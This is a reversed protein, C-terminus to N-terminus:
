RTRRWWDPNYRPNDHWDVRYRGPRTETVRGFRRVAEPPIHAPISIEGEAVMLNGGFTGGRQVRGALQANADWGPVGRVELVTGGDGAWAAAGQGDPTSVQRTAGRFGSEGREEVHELLNRNPGRPPEFGPTGLQTRVTDVDASVGTYLPVDHGLPFDPRVERVGGGPAPVQATMDRYLALDRQHEHALADGFGRRRAEPLAAGATELQAVADYMRGQSLATDAGQLRRVAGDPLAHIDASEVGAARLATVLRGAQAEPAGSAMLRSVAFARELQALDAGETRRLAALLDGSRAAYRTMLRPDQVLIRALRELEDATAGNLARLTADDLSSLMFVARRTLAAEVDRGIASRLRTRERVMAGVGLAFLGGSIILLTIVQVIADQKRPGSLHPDSLVADIQRVGEVSILVLQTGELATASWLLMRGQTTMMLARGGTTAAVWATRAGIISAAIGVVDIAIQTGSPRANQLQESINIAGATAGVGAAAIFLGAAIPQGGPILGVVVGTLALALSAWGLDGSLAGMVSAGRTVFTWGGPTIGYPNAPIDARLSGEPYLNRQNFDEIAAATSEGGYEIRPVGPTLDLLKVRAPDARDPGMFLRPLMEVGTRSGVYSVRLAVARPNGEADTAFMRTHRDVDALFERYRTVEEIEREPLVAQVYQAEGVERGADDLQVVSFGFTGATTTSWRVSQGDGLAYATGGRYSTQPLGTFAPAAADDGLNRVTWRFAAANPLAHVSLTVWGPSDRSSLRAPNEASTIYTPRDFSQDQFGGHALQGHAVELAARYSALDAGTHQPLLVDARTRAPVATWTRTLVLRDPRGAVAIIIRQTYDGERLIPLTTRNPRSSFGAMRGGGPYETDWMYVGAAPTTPTPREQRMHFGLQMGVIYPQGPERAPTRDVTIGLARAEEEADEGELTPPEEGLSCRQLRLAGRRPRPERGLLVDRAAADADRELAPDSAAAPSVAGDRQQLTHALEHALLADGALTGPRYEGAGFAVDGGVAFARARLDAATRAARPDTHVRVGAFSAGFGDEMRARVAPELARGPGLRARVAAPDAPSAASSGAAGVGKGQVAGAGAPPLGDGPVGDPLEPVRGTLAWEAAARRAHSVIAELLAAADTGEAGTYRLIAREVRAAPQARYFAIWQDLYPCGETSRGAAGLVEDCAPRLRSELADMFASVTMRGDAPAGDDVLVGYPGPGPAASGGDAAPPAAAAPLAQRQVALGQRQEEKDRCRECTGGCACKRQVGGPALAWALPAALGAAGGGAGAPAKEGAEASSSRAERAARAAPM